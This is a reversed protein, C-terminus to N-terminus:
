GGLHGETWQCPKSHVKGVMMCTREWESDTGKTDLLAIGDVKGSLEGLEIRIDGYRPVVLTM